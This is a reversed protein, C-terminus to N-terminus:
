TLTSDDFAFSISAPLLSILMFRRRSPNACRWSPHSKLPPRLKPQGPIIVDTIYRPTSVRQCANPMLAPSILEDTTSSTPTVWMAIHCWLEYTHPHHKGLDWSFIGDKPYLRHKIWCPVHTTPSQLLFHRIHSHTSLGPFKGKTSENLNSHTILRMGVKASQSVARELDTVKEDRATYISIKHESLVDLVDDNIGQFSKTKESMPSYMEEDQFKEYTSSAFHNMPLWRIRTVKLQVLWGKM